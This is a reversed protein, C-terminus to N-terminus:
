SLFLAGKEWQGLNSVKNAIWAHIQSCHKSSALALLFATKLTLHKLDTDKMPEFPAKTLENLVVSLKWKPLNRSSKPHDKHFSSFLRNLDSSQSIRLGTPGLIDVITARYGDITSPHRNLYQYLYMFSDSVQFGGFQMAQNKPDGQSPSGNSRLCLCHSGVAKHESCRYVLCKTRPSSIRVTSSQPESSHCLDVHPIFWKHCIQKFMQPHLSWETSQVQNSRSLLNAMVNLCGPIHRAKLNDPLSPVLDHDEVPSHVDGCLSNRRTQKHLSSSNLQGYCSVKSPGIVGGEARSCKHTAKKGQTVVSGKNSAQELHAGWGENSAATFLQISHDKPHLYAGKIVNPPNQWWELHASITETWSLLTDLSQPFRWHEKLHFQFPRMHLHGELVMKEMSALLGILSM